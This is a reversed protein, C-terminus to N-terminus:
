SIFNNLVLKVDFGFHRYKLNNDTIELDKYAPESNLVCISYIGVTLFFSEAKVRLVMAQQHTVIPM